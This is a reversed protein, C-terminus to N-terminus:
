AAPTRATHPGAKSGLTAVYPINHSARRRESHGDSPGRVVSLEAPRFFLNPDVRFRESMALIEVHEFTPQPRSLTWRRRIRESAANYSVGLVAALEHTDMGEGGMLSRVIRRQHEYVDSAPNKRSPRPM